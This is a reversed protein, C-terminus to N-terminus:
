QVYWFRGNLTRIIRPKGSNDLSVEENVSSKEEHKLNHRFNRGTITVDYSVGYPSGNWSYKFNSIQYTIQDFVTFSNHLYGQLDDLTTGDGSEWDDSIMAMVASENRSEYVEEFQTYFDRVLQETIPKPRSPTQSNAWPRIFFFRRKYETNMRTFFDQRNPSLKPDSVASALFGMVASEKAAAQQYLSRVIPDYMDKNYAAQADFELSSLNGVVESFREKMQEFHAEANRWQRFATLKESFVTVVGLISARTHDEWCNAAVERLFDLGNDPYNALDITVNNVPYSHRPISLL